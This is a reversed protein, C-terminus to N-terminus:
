KSGSETPESESYNLIRDIEDASGDAELLPISVAGDRGVFRDGASDIRVDLLRKAEALQESLQINRLRNEKLSDLLDDYADPSKFLIFDAIEACCEMCLYAVGYYELEVGLNAFIEEPFRGPRSCLLCLGPQLMRGFETPQVRASSDYRYNLEM